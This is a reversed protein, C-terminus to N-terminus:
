QFYRQKPLTDTYYYAEREFFNNEWQNEQGPNALWYLTRHLFANYDNYFIKNYTELFNSLGLNEAVAKEPKDFFSNFGSLREYQFNHILEHPLALKGRQDERILIINLISVGNPDILDHEIEPTTFVLTGMRLSHKLHFRGESFSYISAALAAPMIRYRLKFRGATHIEFRNFGINMHWREWFDRNAAANEIISTGASNVIKSPWVYGFNGSEAFERVLRQSEFVAYGGMAGQGLGKLLVRGFNEEPEKNIVAGVGGLVSGIGINFLGAELDNNQAKGPATHLFLLLFSLLFASLHPKM